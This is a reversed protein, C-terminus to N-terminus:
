KSLGEPFSADPDDEDVVVEIDTAQIGVQELVEMADVTHGELVKKGDVYMAVWDGSAAKIFHVGISM